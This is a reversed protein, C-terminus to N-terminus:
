RFISFTKIVGLSSLPDFGKTRGESEAEVQAIECSALLLVSRGKGERGTGPREKRTTASPTMEAPSAKMERM